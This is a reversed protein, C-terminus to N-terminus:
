LIPNKLFYQGTQKLFSIICFKMIVTKYKTQVNQNHSHDVIKASSEGEAFTVNLEERSIFSYINIM